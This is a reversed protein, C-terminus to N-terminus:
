GGNNNLCHHELDPVEGSEVGEITCNETMYLFM